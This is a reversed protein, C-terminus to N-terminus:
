LAAALNGLSIAGLNTHINASMDIFLSPLPFRSLVLFILLKYGCM